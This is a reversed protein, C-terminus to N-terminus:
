RKVVHSAWAAMADLAAENFNGLMHSSGKSLVHGADPVVRIETVANENTSLGQQWVSVETAPDRDQGGILVLVPIRLKQISPLPDFTAVWSWFPRLREDPLVRGIGLAASWGSSGGSKLLAEVTALPTKGDLYSFYAEITKRAANLHDGQVNLQRLRREYDFTETARPSIGSGTLAILFSLDSRQSAVLPAVWGGQSVGVVGTRTADAEPRTRLWDLLSAGDRAMDDLSAKLWSGTSAGCGRKDFTLAIFGARAFAEAFYRSEHRTSPGSGPLILVAPAKQNARLAPLTLSVALQAGDVPVVLETVANGPMQASGVAFAISVLLNM